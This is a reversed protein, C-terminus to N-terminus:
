RPNGSAVTFSRFVSRTSKVLNFSPLDDLLYVFHMPQSIERWVLGVSGLSSRMGLPGDGALSPM